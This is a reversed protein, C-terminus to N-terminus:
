LKRDSSTRTRRFPTRATCDADGQTLPLNHTPSALQVSVDRFLYEAERAAREAREREKGADDVEPAATMAGRDQGQGAPSQGDAAGSPVFGVPKNYSQPDVAGGSHSPTGSSASGARAGWGRSSSGGGGASSHSSVQAKLRAEDQAAREAAKKVTRERFLDIESLITTRQNEPLEEPALDNLHSPVKNKADDGDPGSGNRDLSSLEGGANLRDVIQKLDDRAQIMYEDPGQLDVSTLEAMGRVLSCREFRSLGM